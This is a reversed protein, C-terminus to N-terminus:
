HNGRCARSTGSRNRGHRIRQFGISVTPCIASVAIRFLSSPIEREVNSERSRGPLCEESVSDAATVYGIRLERPVRLVPQRRPATHPLRFERPRLRSRDAFIPHRQMGSSVEAYWGLMRLFAHGVARHFAERGLNSTPSTRARLARTERRAAIRSFSLAPFPGGPLYTGRYM